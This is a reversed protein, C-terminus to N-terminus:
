SVHLPAFVLFCMFSVLSTFLSLVTCPFYVLPFVLAEWRWSCLFKKSISYAYKTRRHSFFSIKTRHKIYRTVTNENKICSDLVAGDNQFYKIPQELNLQHETGGRSCLGTGKAARAAFALEGTEQEAITLPM